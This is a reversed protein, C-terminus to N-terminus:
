YINLYFIRQYIRVASAATRPLGANGAFDPASVAASWPTLIDKGPEANPLARILNSYDEVIVRSQPDLVAIAVVLAAVDTILAPANPNFADTGPNTSDPKMLFTFEFRFTQDGLVQYFATSTPGLNANWAANSEIRQPLFVMQNPNQGAPDSWVLGRSLRELKNEYRGATANVRYGALSLGSNLNANSDDFYGPKECFFFLEDNEGVSGTGRKRAVYDVDERKVMATLDFGIRDLVLRAENDADMRRGSDTTVRAATNVIQSATILLLILLAMSVLLEVITFARCASKQFVQM